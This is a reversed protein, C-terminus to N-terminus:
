EEQREFQKKKALKLGHLLRQDKEIDEPEVGLADLTSTDDHTYSYEHNALEYNFMDFIFGEGTIDAAVADAFEKNHRAFMEALRPSDTRLYFCGTNSLSYIKDTDNPSLGFKAMGEEFQKDSFAFFCPFDNFEKQHRDKLETYANM